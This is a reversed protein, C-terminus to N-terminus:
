DRREGKCDVLEGIVGIESGVGIGLGRRAATYVVWLGRERRYVTDLLRLVNRGILEDESQVRIQIDDEHCHHFAAHLLNYSPM